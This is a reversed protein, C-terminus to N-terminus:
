RSQALRLWDHIPHIQETTEWIMGPGLEIHEGCQNWFLPSHCSRDYLAEFHAMQTNEYYINNYSFKMLPLMEM